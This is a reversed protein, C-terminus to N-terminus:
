IIMGHLRIGSRRGTERSRWMTQHGSEIRPDAFFPYREGPPSSFCVFDWRVTVLVSEEAKLVEVPEDLLDNQESALAGADAWSGGSDSPTIARHLRRAASAVAGGIGGGSREQEHTNFSSPRPVLPSRIRSEIGPTSKIKLRTNGEKPLMRDGYLPQSNNDNLSTTLPPSRHMGSRVPVPPIASTKAAIVATPRRSSLRAPQLHPTQRGSPTASRYEM